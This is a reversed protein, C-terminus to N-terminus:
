LEFVKVKLILIYLVKNCRCFYIRPSNYSFINWILGLGVGM